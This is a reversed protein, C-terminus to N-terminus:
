LREGTLLNVKRVDTEGLTEYFKKYSITGNKGIIGAVYWEMIVVSPIQILSIIPLKTNDVFNYAVVSRIADKVNEPTCTRGKGTNSSLRVATGRLTLAKTSYESDLSGVSDFGKTDKRALKQGYVNAVWIETFCSIKRGDMLADQFVLWDICMGASAKAIDIEGQYVIRKRM